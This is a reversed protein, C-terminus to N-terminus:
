KSLLVAEEYTEKCVLQLKENQHLYYHMQGEDATAIALFPPELFENENRDTFGISISINKFNFPFNEAYKRFDTSANIVKLYAEVCEILLRRGQQIDLAQTSEFDVALMRLGKGSGKAAGGGSGVTVLAKDKYMKQSFVKTLHSSVRHSDESRQLDIQPHIQMEAEAELNSFSYMLGFLMM